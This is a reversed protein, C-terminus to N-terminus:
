GSKSKIEDAVVYLPAPFIGWLVITAHIDGIKEIEELTQKTTDCHAISYSDVIKYHFQKRSPKFNLLIGSEFIPAHIIGRFEFGKAAQENILKTLGRLLDSPTVIYIAEGTAKRGEIHLDNMMEEMTVIM